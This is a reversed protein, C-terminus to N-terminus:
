KKSEKATKDAFYAKAQRNDPATALAKQYNDEAKADDKAIYQYYSGLYAHAEALNKKTREDDSPAAEKLQLYEEYYPKAYGKINKRDTEKLDNLRARYLFVDAVPRSTTKQQVYSFASDAKALLATDAAVTSKKNLFNFYQDSYGYYYSMGARFYDNLKPHKAHAIYKEYADGAATYKQKTYLMGGIEAYVDAMTTDLEAAKLMNTIGLSDQGTKVQLRGLYLYDRPIIRKPAAEKMFKGLAELGAPYNNNEYAAYGLYRYIRLNTKDSKALQNAVQELTKYDGAEILFDAYRMESEPSRDTLDLYKKYYEAGEKVKVSAMKPDTQAWRLDTEALERYAPGYNPDAATAKKLEDEAGDFNNAQKWLAGIAVEIAPSKPDITQANAYNAYAKSNDLKAHYADGLAIFYQPDKAGAKAAKELTAIALDAKPDPKMLYVKSMYIYPLDSKGAFEAAQDFNQMLASANNDLKGIAGLGVYNLSSKPNVAIGKTFVTKASDPYDQLLYVWGLYFYNEDKSAETTTLTKLWVKAKQYQEADIAKQVDSLKQASGSTAALIASAALTTTILKNKM